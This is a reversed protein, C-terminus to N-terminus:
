WGATGPGGKFPGRIETTIWGGYFRGPQPTVLEGDVTAEDLAWAYFAIHGALEEYGPSPDPYYWAVNPRHVAGARVSYYRARGKYECYTTHPSDVLLETAVDEPPLYYVPPQHTELVRVPRHTDAIVRGGVLARVHREVREIVPPRPYDGVVEVPRAPSM